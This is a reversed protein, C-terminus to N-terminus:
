DLDSVPLIIKPHKKDPKYFLLTRGIKQVFACGIKKTIREAIEKPEDLCNDLLKIKLLEHTNFANQVSFFTNDSLGNKGVNITPKISNGLSQLFRKQKATLLKLAIGKDTIYQNM